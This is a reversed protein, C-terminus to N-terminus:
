HLGENTRPNELNGAPIFILAIGVAEPVIREQLQYATTEGILSIKGTLGGERPQVVGRVIFGTVAQGQGQDVAGQLFSSACPSWLPDHEVEIPGVIRCMAVLFTNGIIAVGLLVHDMRQQDKVTVGILEDRSDKSGAGDM